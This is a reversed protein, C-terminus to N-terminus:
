HDHAAVWTKAQSLAARISEAWLANQNAVETLDRELEALAEAVHGRMTLLVAVRCKGSAGSYEPSERAAQILRDGDGLLGHLYPVVFTNVRDAIEVAVENVNSESVTWELWRAEPSVYGISTTVTRTRYSGDVACFDAVIAEVDPLRLGVHLTLAGIGRGAYKTAVSAAAVGICDSTLPATFWGAARPQWGISTMPQRLAADALKRATLMLPVITRNRHVSMGRLPDDAM